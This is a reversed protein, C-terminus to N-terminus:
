AGPDARRREARHRRRPPATPSTWRVSYRIIFNLVLYPPVNNHGAGGGANQISVGTAAASLYCGTGAGYVGQGTGSASNYCRTTGYAITIGIGAGYVGLGVGRADTNGGLNGATDTRVSTILWGNAPQVHPGGASTAVQHDLGHSHGGTAINHAHGPDSLSHAHGPDSYGHLHQPDQFAHNHGPDSLSHAHGPDNFGHNHTPDTVGHAHPPMEGSTLVHVAEGGSAGLVYAGGPGIPFKQSINPVASSTGATGGPFRNALIPALLPISANPYVSGDCLLWNQPATAGSWMMIGGIPAARDVYQRVGADGADVYQRTASHLPQSPDGSLTLLGTMAGGALAVKTDAYAKTSADLNGVPPGSLTLLGTLTGGALALKTDAYRKSAAELPQAPDAALLLPGAMTGGALSLVPQWSLNVRGYVTSDNPADIVINSPLGQNNAITWQNSTGDGFWIYLQAGIGDFWLNGQQPNAPPTDSITVAGGAIQWQAPNFAGPAVAVLARYMTGSSVVHDGAAYNTQTSFFRVGLLPVPNQANDIVGLQNDSYNVYIEGPKRTAATPAKNPTSTRLSQVSQGTPSEMTGADTSNAYSQLATLAAQVNIAGLVAPSVTVNTAFVTGTNIFVHTWRTGDCLLQDGATYAGAPASGPPTSGNTACTIFKGTLGVTPAPLTNGSQGSQTSWTIVGTTANFSGWLVTGALVAKIQSTNENIAAILGSKATTQLTALQGGVVSRLGSSPVVATTSPTVGDIDANAALQPTRAWSGNVRGYTSGDFPADSLSVVPQGNIFLAQANVTGPGMPYAQGVVVGFDYSIFGTHLQWPNPPSLPGGVGVAGSIATLGGIIATPEPSAKPAAKVPPRVKRIM